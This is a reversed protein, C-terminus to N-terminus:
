DEPEITPSTAFPPNNLMDLRLQADIITVAKLCTELSEDRLLKARDLARAVDNALHNIRNIPKPKSM